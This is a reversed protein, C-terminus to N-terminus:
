TSAFKVSTYTIHTHTYAHTNLSLVNHMIYM